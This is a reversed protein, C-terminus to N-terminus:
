MRPSNPATAIPTDTHNNGVGIVASTPPALHDTDRGTSNTRSMGPAGMVSKAISSHQTQKPPGPAAHVTASILPPSAPCIVPLAPGGVNLPTLDKSVDDLASLSSPGSPSHCSSRRFRPSLPLIKPSQPIAQAASHAPPAM